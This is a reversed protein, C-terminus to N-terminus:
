FSFTYRALVRFNQSITAKSIAKGETYIDVRQGAINTYHGVAIDYRMGADLTKIPMFPVRVAVEIGHYKAINARLGVNLAIDLSTTKVKDSILNLSGGTQQIYEDKHQQLSDAYKGNITNAGIGFGLFMGFDFSNTSVFNGLFDINVGYNILKTQFQHFQGDPLSNPTGAISIANAHTLDVNAYYRFGVSETIFQKYGAVVGYSVGNSNHKITTDYVVQKKYEYVGYRNASSKVNGYGIGLGWFVGSEEALAVSANFLLAVIVMYVLKKM